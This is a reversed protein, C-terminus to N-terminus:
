WCKFSRIYEKAKVRNGDFVELLAGFLSNGNMPALNQTQPIITTSIQPGVMSLHESELVAVSLHEAETDLTFSYGAIAV